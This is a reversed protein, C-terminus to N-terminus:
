QRRAHVQMLRFSMQMLWSQKREWLPLILFRLSRGILRQIEQTRGSLKLVEREHRQPTSGPLMRYEATLWGTGTDKLFKPVGAQITVTCLVQTDGCHTLVSSTSFKTFNSQFNIPRLQEPKRNQRM